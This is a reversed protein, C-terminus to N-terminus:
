LGEEAEEALQQKMKALYVSFSNDDTAKRGASKARREKPTAMLEKQIRLYEKTYDTITKHNAKLLQIAEKCGQYEAREDFIALKSATRWAGKLQLFSLMIMMKDKPNAGDSILERLHERFLNREIQCNGHEIYVACGKSALICNDCRTYTYGIFDETDLLILQEDADIAASPLTIFGDDDFDAEPSPLEDM